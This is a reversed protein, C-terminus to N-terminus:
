QITQATPVNWVRITSDYSATIATDESPHYVVRSVKKSHGKLIAVVQEDDKNFVAATKDAGGTLIRSSNNANIDLALIGSQIIFNNDHNNMIYNKRSFQIFNIEILECFNWMNRSISKVFIGYFLFLILNYIIQNKKTKHVQLIIGPVSASHLGPHSAVTKYQKKITDADVLEEPVTKAKKRREVTLVNAKEQFKDVLEASM